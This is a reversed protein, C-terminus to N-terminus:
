DQQASPTYAQVAAIITDDPVGDSSVVNLEGVTTAELVAEDSAVALLLKDTLAKGALAAAARVRATFNDDNKTLRDIKWLVSNALPSTMPQQSM